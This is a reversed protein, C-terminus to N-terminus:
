DWVFPSSFSMGDKEDGPTALVENAASVDGAEEHGGMWKMFVPDVSKPVPVAETATIRTPVVLGSGFM